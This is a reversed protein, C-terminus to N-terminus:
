RGNGVQNFRVDRDAAFERPMGLVRESIVNRAMETSGGALSWASRFLYDLCVRTTDAADGPRHTAATSGAIRVAM